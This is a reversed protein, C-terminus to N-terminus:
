SESKKVLDTASVLLRQEPEIKGTEQEFSGLCYLSFDEPHLALTSKIGNQPPRNITDQFQRMADLDNNCVFPQNMGIKADKVCYVKLM